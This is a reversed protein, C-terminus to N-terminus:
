PQRGRRAAVRQSFPVTRQIVRQFEQGQDEGQDLWSVTVRALVLEPLVPDVVFEVGYKMGPYGDVRDVRLPPLELGDDPQEPVPATALTETAIRHLVQEALLAARARQEAGRRTAVGVSLVGILTTVGFVLIGIAVMLELLTFGRQDGARHDKTASM